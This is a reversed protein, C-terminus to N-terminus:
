KKTRARYKWSQRQPVAVQEIKLFEELALLRSELQSIRLPMNYADKAGSDDEHILKLYRLERRLHKDKFM